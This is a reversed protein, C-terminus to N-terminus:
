LSRPRQKPTTRVRSTPRAASRRRCSANIAELALESGQPDRGEAPQPWSASIDDLSFGDPLRGEMRRVFEERHPSAALRVRWEEHM